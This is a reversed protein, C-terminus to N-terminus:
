RQSGTRAHPLPGLADLLIATNRARDHRTLATHKAALGHARVLAPEQLYVEMAACLEDVNRPSVLQGNKGSVVTGSVGGVDSVIAPLGQSFAEILSMPFGEAHSPLVFVHSHALHASLDSGQVWGPAVYLDQRGQQVAWARVEELLTGAGLFYIEFRYREQLRQAAEMLERVGKEAVLWGVFVFRVPASPAVNAVGERPPFSAPLFFNVDVLRDQSVGLRAYLDLWPKGMAVVKDPARLCIRSIWRWKASTKVAEMYWGDVILMLSPTGARRALWAMASRELFSFGAGAIIIVGRVRATRLARRLHSLRSLGARLRAGLGTDDFGSRSTDIVEVDHGRAGAQEVIGASLTQVGGPHQSGIKTPNAGVLIISSSAQTVAPKWGTKCGAGCTAAPRELPSQGHSKGKGSWGSFVAPM